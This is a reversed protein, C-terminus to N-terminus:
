DNSNKVSSYHLMYRNKDLDNIYYTRFKGSNFGDSGDVKEDIKNALDTDTYGTFMVYMGCRKGATCIAGSWSGDVGGFADDLSAEIMYVRYYGPLNLYTSGAINSLYPGRWGNVNDNNNVLEATKFMYYGGASSDSDVRPLNVGTDLYYQEWAKGVENMEAILATAKADQIASYLAAGSIVSLAGFIALAIRADLGFMAAKQKSNMVEGKILEKYLEKELCAKICLKMFIVVM